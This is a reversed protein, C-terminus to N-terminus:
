KLIDNHPLITKAQKEYPKNRLKETTLGNKRAEKEFLRKASKIIYTRWIESSIFPIPIKAILQVAKEPVPYGKALATATIKLSKSVYFLPPRKFGGFGEIGLLSKGSILGEGTGITLGGAWLMDTELAFNRCISLAVTNQYSEPFANNIIALFIKDERSTNKKRHEAIDEFSKTVLFPLSDFYLPTALVITDARDVAGCLNLQSKKHLLNSTLNLIETEVNNKNLHKELCTTLVNSTSKKSNKQSGIILLAKHRKTVKKFSPKVQQLLSTINKHLPFKDTRALLSHFIKRLEEPSSNTNVVDASYRSPPLNLANRGVLTTFCNAHEKNPTPHVGVGIIHPFTSYRPPHHTEGQNKIFFPLVMPLFRDVIKKLESSYGGFVIPTFLVITDSNLVARLIESGKDGRHICQGPTKFWCNFCGICPNICVDRLTFTKIKTTGCQLLAESLLTLISKSKADGPRSGDLIVTLQNSMQSKKVLKKVTSYHRDGILPQVLFTKKSLPRDLLIKDGYLSM